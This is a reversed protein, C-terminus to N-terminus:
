RYGPNYIMKKIVFKSSTVNSIVASLILKGAVVRYFGEQRPIKTTSSFKNIVEDIEDKTMSINTKKRGMMGEVMININEGPCEIEKVLPDKILPNLKGLDIEVNTPTPKLYQFRPPIRFRTPVLSTMPVPQKLIRRKLQVGGGLIEPPIELNSRFGSKTYDEEVEVLKKMSERKELKSKESVIKEKIFKELELFEGKASHRILERTFEALIFGRGSHWDFNGKMM